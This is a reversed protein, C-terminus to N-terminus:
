KAGVMEREASRTRPGPKRKRERRIQDFYPFFDVQITHRASRTYRRAMKDHDREIERLMQARDPLGAKGELVDAIWESQAEALPMIAGWPQVLGIFYLGPVDPHVVNRYLDVQNGVANIIETDLFPFSIDYGTAYIVVDVEEESDDDFRVRSGCLGKINPKVTVDGHGLVNLLDASITPHEQLVRHTPKPLGYNKVLGRSMMLGLAFLGQLVKFPLYRWCWPPLIRDMARGFMYKPIIHAGRRTALFTKAAVRSVECVIDCSSNGLGLIVVRKGTFAFPERYYHAHM